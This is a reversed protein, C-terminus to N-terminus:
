ISYSEALEDEKEWSGQEIMFNSNAGYAGDCNGFVRLSATEIDCNNEKSYKLAHARIYNKEIPEDAKAALFAAEALTKIQLPLLDRFIGSLTIMVDVRPRGLAELSVLEAGSLRGYSDFRPKAGMLWLAQAIPCGETKLNDTGWLVMAVSEPFKGEDSKIRELLKDAQKTGVVVAYSSPLRFPDFGHLNRGTPLVEPTNLIDGGPAPRIYKGELVKLIGSIENDQHIFKRSNILTTILENLRESQFCSSLRKETDSFFKRSKKIEKAVIERAFGSDKLNVINKVLLEVVHNINELLSFDNIHGKSKEYAEDQRYLWSFTMAKM